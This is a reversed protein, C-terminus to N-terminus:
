QSSRIADMLIHNVLKVVPAQEGADELFSLDVDEAAEVVDVDVEDRLMGLVDDINEDPAYFLAITKQHHRLLL